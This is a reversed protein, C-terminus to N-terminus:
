PAKPMGAKVWQMATHKGGAAGFAKFRKHLLVASLVSFSDAAVLTVGVAARAQPSLSMADMRKSVTDVYWSSGAVLGFAIAGGAAAMRVNPTQWLM